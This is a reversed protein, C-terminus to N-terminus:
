LWGTKLYRAVGGEAAPPAIHDAIAQIDPEGNAMCVGDGAVELMSTDNYNDGFAVISSLPWGKHECLWALGTGKTAALDTAEYTAPSTQVYQLQPFRAIGARIAAAATEDVFFFTLKTVPGIHALLDPIRRPQPTRGAKLYGRLGEDVDIQDFLHFRMQETYAHGDAFVDFICTDSPVLGYLSRILDKDIGVQLIDCTCRLDHVVAGNCAVVYRVSPHTRMDAPVGQVHRGTCPVLAIGRAALEDMLALNAPPISKDPALFTDDLDVFVARPEGSRPSRGDAAHQRATM